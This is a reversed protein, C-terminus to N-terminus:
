FKENLQHPSFFLAHTEFELYCFFEAVITFFTLFDLCYSTKEELVLYIDLSSLLLISESPSGVLSACLFVRFFAIRSPNNAL